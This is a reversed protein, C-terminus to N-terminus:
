LNYTYSMSQQIEINAQIFLTLRMGFLPSNRINASV